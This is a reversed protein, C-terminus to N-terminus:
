ERIARDSKAWLMLRRVPRRLPLVARDVDAPDLALVMGLGMNYTNYMMREELNGTKQMLRFIPLVEYGAKEIVAHTGEPLM